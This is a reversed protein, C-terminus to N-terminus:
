LAAPLGPRDPHDPRERPAAPRVRAAGGPRHGPARLRAPPRPRGRGPLRRLGAPPRPRRRGGPLAGRERRLPGPRLLRPHHAPA